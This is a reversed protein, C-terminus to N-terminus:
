GPKFTFRDGPWAWEDKATQGITTTDCDTGATTAGRGRQRGSESLSWAVSVAPTWWAWEWIVPGDRGECVTLDHHKRM